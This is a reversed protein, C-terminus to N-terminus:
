RNSDPALIAAALRAAVVGGAAIGLVKLLGGAFSDEEHEVPEILAYVYYWSKGPRLGEGGPQLNANKYDTHWILDQELECAEDFDRTEYLVVMQTFREDTKRRHSRARARYNSTTGVYCEVARDARTYSALRKRLKTAERSGSRIDHDRIVM